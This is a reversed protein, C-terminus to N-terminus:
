AVLEVDAPTIVRNIGTWAYHFREPTVPTRGAGFKPRVCVGDLALFLLERREETTAQEWAERITDADLLYGIDATPEPIQSLVNEAARVADEAEKLLGPYFQAAPGEFEKRKYKATVLDELAAKANELREEAERREAVSDPRHTDLWRAAVAHLLPSDPASATLRNVFAQFVFSEAHTATISTPNDCPKGGANKHPCGFSRGRKILTRGCGSCHMVGSLEHRGVSRVGRKTGKKGFLATREAVVKRAKLQQAETVVGKGVTVRQGKDNRYIPDERDDWDSAPQFGIYAPHRLIKYLRNPSWIRGPQPFIGDAQLRTIVVPVTAGGGVERVIRRIVDAKTPGDPEGPIAPSPDPVLRRTKPDKKLGYPVRKALWIGEDKSYRWADAVRDSLQDSFEKADEARWMIMRRDKPESTDLNDSGFFIRKGELRDMITLVALAGKRSFRDLKYSWLCRTAGSELARLGADYGPRHVDKSGSIGNDVWVFRPRYGNWEGWRIGDNIQQNVSLERDERGKRSVSKRAYIDMDGNPDLIQYPVAVRARSNSGAFTTPREATLTSM